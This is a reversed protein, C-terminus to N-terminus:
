KQTRLRPENPRSMLNRIAVNCTAIAIKLERSMRAAYRDVRSPNAALKAAWPKLAEEAKAKKARYRDLEAQRDKRPGTWEGPEPLRRTFRGRNEGETPEDGDTM